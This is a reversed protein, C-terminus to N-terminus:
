HRINTLTTKNPDYCLLPDHPAHKHFLGTRIGIHHNKVASFIDKAGSSINVRSTDGQVDNINLFKFISHNNADTLPKKTVHYYADAQKFYVEWSNGDNGRTWLKWDANEEILTSECM